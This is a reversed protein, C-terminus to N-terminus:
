APLTGIEDLADRGVIRKIDGDVYIMEEFAVGLDGAVLRPRVAYLGSLRRPNYWQIQNRRMYTAARASTPWAVDGIGERNLCVHGVAKADGLTMRHNIAWGQAFVFLEGVTKWRSAFGCTSRCLERAGSVLDPQKDVGFARAHGVDGYAVDNAPGLDIEVLAGPTLKNSSSARYIRGARGGIRVEPEHYWATFGSDAALARVNDVIESESQGERLQAFAASLVRLAGRQAQEFAELTESDLPQHAPM